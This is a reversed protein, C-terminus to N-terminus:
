AALAAGRFEPHPTAGRQVIIMRAPTSVRLVAVPLRAAASRGIRASVPRRPPLADDESEMGLVMWAVIALVIVVVIVAAASPLRISRSFPAVCALLIAIAIRRAGRVPRQPSGAKVRWQGTDEDREYDPGGSRVSVEETM